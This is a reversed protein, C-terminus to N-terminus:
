LDYPPLGVHLTGPVGCAPSGERVAQPLLQTRRALNVHSQGAWSAIAVVAFAIAVLTIRLLAKRNVVSRGM